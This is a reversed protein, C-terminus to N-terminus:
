ISKKDFEPRAYNNEKQVEALLDQLIQLKLRYNQIMAELVQDNAINDKLDQKLSIYISDLESFDSIVEEQVEPIEAFLPQLENMKENVLNSYYFEAEKLEPIQEYIEENFREALRADKRNERLEHYSYSLIFIVVVAAVRYAYKLIIRSNLRRGKRKKEIKEWLGPDPTHIDFEDRHKRVYDEFHDKM